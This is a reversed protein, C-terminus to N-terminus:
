PKNAPLFHSIDDGSEDRKMERNSPQRVCRIARPFGRALLTRALQSIDLLADRLSLVSRLRARLAQSLTGRLGTGYPVTHDPAALGLPTERRFTRPHKKHVALYEEQFTRTRHDEFQEVCHVTEQVRRSVLAARIVGYGVPRSKKPHRKKGPVEHWAVIAGDRRSM